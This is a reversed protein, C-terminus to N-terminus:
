RGPRPPRRDTETGEAIGELREPTLRLRDRLAAPLKRRRAAALDQGNAKLIPGSEKVLKRAYALLAGNKSDTSARALYRTAARANRALDLVSKRRKM